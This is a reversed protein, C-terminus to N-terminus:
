GPMRVSIIGSFMPTGPVLVCSGLNSIQFITVQIGASLPDVPALNSTPEIEVKIIVNSVLGFNRICTAPVLFFDNPTLRVFYLNITRKKRDVSSHTNSM